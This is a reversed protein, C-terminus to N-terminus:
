LISELAMSGKAHFINMHSIIKNVQKYKVLWVRKLGMLPKLLCSTEKEWTAGILVHETESSTLIM